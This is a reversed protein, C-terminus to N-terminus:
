RIEKIGTQRRIAALTDKPIDKGYPITTRQKTEPHFFVMHSGKGRGTSIWGAELLIKVIEDRGIVLVGGKFSLYIKYEKLSVDLIIYVYKYKIRIFHHMKGGTVFTVDDNSM